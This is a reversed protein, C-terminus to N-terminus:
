ILGLLRLAILVLVLAVLVGVASQGRDPNHM